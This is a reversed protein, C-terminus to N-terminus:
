QVAQADSRDVPYLQSQVLDEIKRMLEKIETDTKMLDFNETLFRGTQEGIKRAVWMSWILDNLKDFTEKL